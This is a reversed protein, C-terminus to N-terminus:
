KDAALAVEKVQITNTHGATTGFAVSPALVVAAIGRVMRHRPAPLYVAIIAKALLISMRQALVRTVDPRHTGSSESTRM